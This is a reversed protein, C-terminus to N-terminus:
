FFMGRIWRYGFWFLTIAVAIPILLVLVDYFATGFSTIATEILDTSSATSFM